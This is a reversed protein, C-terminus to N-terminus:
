VKSFYPQVASAAWTIRNKTEVGRVDFNWKVLGELRKTAYRLALVAKQRAEHETEKAQARLAAILQGHEVLAHQDANLKARNLKYTQDGFDRIKM